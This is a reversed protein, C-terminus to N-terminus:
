GDSGPVPLGRDGLLGQAPEVDLRMPTSRALAMWVDFPLECPTHRAPRVRELSGTDIDGHLLWVGFSEPIEEPRAVGAPFVYHCESCLWQYSARKADHRLDSLLDARSVKIEHVVPQLYARVSTNRISFVDPRALRWVARPTVPDASAEDVGASVPDSEGDGLGALPLPDPEVLGSEGAVPVQARLSLERWVVRGADLLQRAVRQALRDHASLARQNRQRSAALVAIGASTLRLRETGPVSVDVEVWGAALLDIEIGDRSPWGDSRWIKMLRSLHTRGPSIPIPLSM